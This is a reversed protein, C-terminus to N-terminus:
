GKEIYLDNAEETMLGDFYISDANDVAVGVTGRFIDEENFTM